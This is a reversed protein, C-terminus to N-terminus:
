DAAKQCLEGTQKDSYLPRTKGELHKGLESVGWDNGNAKIATIFTRRKARRAQLLVISSVPVVKAWLQFFMGGM